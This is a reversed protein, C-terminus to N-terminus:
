GPPVVVRREIEITASSRLEGHLSWGAMAAAALAFLTAWGSRESRLDLNRGRYGCPLGVRPVACRRGPYDLM